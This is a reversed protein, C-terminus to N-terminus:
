LVEKRVGPVFKALQGTEVEAQWDVAMVEPLPSVGLRKLMNLCQVRHHTGHTTVHVLAAGCTFQYRTQNFEVEIVKGLGDGGPARLEAAIEWLDDAAPELLEGIERPTRVRYESAMGANRPPRDIAPRLARGRLRDGWRRMAGVVHVLTDHLSGPGIDFPRSFEAASLTECVELVRRTGWRDHKLLIDLPDASLGAFSAM